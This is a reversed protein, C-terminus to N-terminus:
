RMPPYPPYPPQNDRNGPIPPVGNNDGGKSTFYTILQGFGIIAPISCCFAVFWHGNVGFAFFLCLGVAISPWAKQLLKPDRGRGNNSATGGNYFAEPLEYDNEIAKAIVENRMRNRKLLFVIVAIISGLLIIVISGFVIGLAALEYSNDDTNENVVISVQPIAKRAKKVSQITDNVVTMTSDIIANATTDIWTTTQTSEVEYDDDDQSYYEDMQQAFREIAELNERHSQINCSTFGLLAVLAILLPLKKM